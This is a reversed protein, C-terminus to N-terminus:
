NEIIDPYFNQNNRGLRNEIEIHNYSPQARVYLICMVYIYYRCLLCCFPYFGFSSSVFLIFLSCCPFIHVDFQHTHTHTNNQLRYHLVFLCSFPSSAFLFLIFLCLKLLYKTHLQFTAKKKSKNEKKKERKRKM